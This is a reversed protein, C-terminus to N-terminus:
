ASSTLDEDGSETESGSGDTGTECFVPFAQEGSSEDHADTDTRFVSCDGDVGGFHGRGTNSTSEDHEPLEPDDGTLRGKQTQDLM